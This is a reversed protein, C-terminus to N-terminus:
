ENRTNRRNLLDEIRENLGDPRPVFVFRRKFIFSFVIAHFSNTVILSANKVLSVFTEPGATVFNKHAYYQYLPCIAYIELDEDKSAQQAKKKIERDSFFDYVLVFREGNGTGDGIQNWQEPSLLFVPDNELEANYGLGEVIKKGSLERVTIRDFRRLSTKVFNETGAKLTKTAFSAAFSERRISDAGFDLYFAPDTGNPFTTNWIQDSGAYYVDAIPPDLRLEEVNHYVKDTLPIHKQSFSQFRTHRKKLRIRQVFRLFFRGWEKFSFGPWYFVRYTLNQYQPRYDIVMVENGQNQLFRALAYTQLRAGYNDVNSCTITCVKM